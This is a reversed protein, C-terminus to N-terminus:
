GGMCAQMWGDKWGFRWGQLFCKGLADDNTVMHVENLGMVVTIVEKPCTLFTLCPLTDLTMSSESATCPNSGVATGPATQSRGRYPGPQELYVPISTPSEKRRPTITVESHSM